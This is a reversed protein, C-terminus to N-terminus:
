ICRSNAVLNAMVDIMFSKFDENKDRDILYKIILKLMANNEKLLKLEESEM